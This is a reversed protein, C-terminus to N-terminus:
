EIPQAEPLNGVSPEPTPQPPQYYELQRTPPTIATANGLCNPIIGGLCIMARAVSGVAGIVDGIPKGLDIQNQQGSGSPAYYQPAYQPARNWTRVRSSATTQSGTQTQVTNTSHESRTEYTPKSSFFGGAEVLGPGFIDGTYYLGLLWWFSLLMLTRTKM